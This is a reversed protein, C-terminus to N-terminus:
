VSEWLEGTPNFETEGPPLQSSLAGRITNAAKKEKDRKGVSRHTNGPSVEWILKFKFEQRLTQMQM